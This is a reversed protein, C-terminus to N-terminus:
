ENLTHNGMKNGRNRWKSKKSCLFMTLDNTIKRKVM